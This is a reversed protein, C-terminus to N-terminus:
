FGVRGHESGGPRKEEDDGGDDGADEPLLRPYALKDEAVRIRVVLCVDGYAVDM